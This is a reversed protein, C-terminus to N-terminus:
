NLDVKNLFWDAKLDINCVYSIMRQKAKLMAEDDEALVEEIENRLRVNYDCSNM